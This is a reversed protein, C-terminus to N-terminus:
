ERVCILKLPWPSVTPTGVDGKMDAEEVGLTDMDWYAGMSQRQGQPCRLAAESHFRSERCDSFSPGPARPKDSPQLCTLPFFISACNGSTYAWGYIPGSSDGVAWQM